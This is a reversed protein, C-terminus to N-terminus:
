DLEAIDIQGIARHLDAEDYRRRRRPACRGLELASHDLYVKGAYHLRGGGARNHVVAAEGRDDDVGKASTPGAVCLDNRESQDLRQHRGVAAFFGRRSKTRTVPWSSGIGYAAIVPHPWPM